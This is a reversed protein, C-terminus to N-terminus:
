DVTEAKGQASARASEVRQAQGVRALVVTVNDHGGAELAESVLRDAAAQLDSAGAVARAIREDAVLDSLGDSCLLYVDGVNAPHRSVEPKVASELGVAQTLIHGFQSAEPADADLQGRDVLTQVVTHDHTLQVAEGNRIRYARSDVVHAVYVFRKGLWVCALTTGMGPKGNSTDARALIAANAEHIANALKQGRDRPRGKVEGTLYHLVTDVAIQAALNGDPHGGMGDALIFLGLEAKAAALDENRNRIRGVNSLIAHEFPM